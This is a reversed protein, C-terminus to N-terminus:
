VYSAYDDLFLTGVSLVPSKVSVYEEPTMESAASFEHLATAITGGILATRGSLVMAKTFYMGLFAAVYEEDMVHSVLTVEKDEPVWARPVTHKEGLDDVFIGDMEFRVAEQQVAEGDAWKLLEQWRSYAAGLQWKGLMAALIAEEAQQFLPALVRKFPTPCDGVVYEPFDHLLGVLVIEAIQAPTLEPNEELAKRVMLEVVELIHHGIKIPSFGGFRHNRSLSTVVDDISIQQPDPNLFDIRRGTATMIWTM